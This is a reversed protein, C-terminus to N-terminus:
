YDYSFKVNEIIYASLGSGSMALAKMNDVQAKGAKGAYSYTYDKSGKFRVIISSSEIQYHTVPSNGRRNSYPTM